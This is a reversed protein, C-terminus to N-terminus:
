ELYYRKREEPTLPRDKLRERTQDILEQLPPFYWVTIVGNEGVTAFHRNDPSFSISNAPQALGKYSVLIVGSQSDCVIVPENEDDTVAVVIKGDPSFALSRVTGSCSMNKWHINGNKADWCIISKDDSASVIQKSDPSYIITNIIGTHGNLTMILEGNEVNWIKINHNISGSVICKGDSSYDVCNVPNTDHNMISVVSATDINWIAIKGNHMTAAVRKGDPSLVVSMFHTEENIVSIANFTKVNQETESNWVRVTGDASLSVILNGDQSYTASVVNDTHGKFYRIMNGTYIDMTALLTTEEEYAYGSIVVNKGNPSYSVSGLSGESVMWANILYDHVSRSILTKGDVILGLYDGNISFQAKNVEGVVIRQAYLIKLTNIDWVILYGNESISVVRKECDCVSVAVFMSTFESVKRGLNHELENEKVDFLCIDDDMINILHKKDTSFLTQGNTIEYGDKLFAGIHTGNELNWIIVGDQSTSVLQKSDPSFSVDLIPEIQASSTHGTQMNLLFMDGESTAIALKNGDPSIAMSSVCSSRNTEFISNLNKNMLLEGTDASWMILAGDGFIGIIAKDDPTYTVCHGFPHGTDLVRILLGTEANWIRITFDDSISAIHKGDSTFSLDNITHTHGNMTVLQQATSQRLAHEAEITFPRDPNDIDKPLVELAMCQALSSDYTIDLIKESIFRSQMRLFREREERKLREEEAKDREYRNWLDVFDVNPLMGALVKVFAKDRGSENVNGGIREDNDQLDLLTKPFCEDVENQAHPIGDVIFPFINRVNDIGKTQGIEIFDAIEKNVWKSKASNPSCIVVLYSSSALADYIQEPLNGAKLEDIDRFVPRFESPLDSRGNLTVPLHYHEMEHQFWIAWEEDERKYSIFAFYKNTKKTNM